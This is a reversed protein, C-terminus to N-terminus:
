KMCSIVEALKSLDEIKITDREFDEERGVGNLVAVFDMDAAKAAKEDITTDGVYVCESVDVGLQNAAYVLPEADPKAHEVDDCSVIVDFFDKIGTTELLVHAIGRRANTVNGLSMGRSKLYELCEKTHPQIMGYEEFYRPFNKDIYEDMKKYEEDTVAGFLSEVIDRRVKGMQKWVEEKSPVPYGFMEAIDRFMRVNAELSKVLTGDSDFLVARKM